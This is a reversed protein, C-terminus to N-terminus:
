KSKLGFMRDGIDCSFCGGQHLLSEDGEKTGGKPKWWQPGFDQAMSAM